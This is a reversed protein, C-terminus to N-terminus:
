IVKSGDNGNGSARASPSHNKSISMGVSGFRQV